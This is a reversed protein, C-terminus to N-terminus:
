PVIDGIAANTLDSLTTGDATSLTRSDVLKTVRYSFSKRAALQPRRAVVRPREVPDSARGWRQCAM